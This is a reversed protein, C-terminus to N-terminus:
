NCNFWTDGSYKPTKYDSKLIGWNQEVNSANNTSAWPTDMAAFWLYYQKESISRCIFKSMYELSNQISPASNQYNEGNTPWGTEGVVISKGNAIKKLDYIHNFIVDNSASVEFGEWFPFIHVMIFDVANILTQDYFPWTEAATVPISSLGLGALVSKMDKVKDAIQSSTQQKRYIAESGVVIAKVNKKLDFVSSLRIIEAKDAEYSADNGEVWMGLYIKWNTGEAARLVPEGQNCDKVSYIRVTDTYPQLNSFDLKVDSLIPCTGDPRKPNYNLGNFRTAASVATALITLFALKM